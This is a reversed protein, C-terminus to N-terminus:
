RAESFAELDLSGQAITVPVNSYFLNLSVFAQVQHSSPVILMCVFM